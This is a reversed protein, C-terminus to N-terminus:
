KVPKAKLSLRVVFYGLIGAVFSGGLIGMKASNILVENTFALDNIFLAMTFGLGGLLAVGAMSMFNVNKPLESLKLKVALYSIFFIGIFKGVLLSIGINSALLTNTNGSFSFVVGANALAFIPIIVYAVWGHLSHELFQVPSATKETLEEMEDIAVLQDHNLITVKKDPSQCANRFNQLIESGKDYFTRTDIHRDIPITLAMLVGAITSHIGSKLFLVWVVVGAIFYFYKAYLRLRTLVILALVIILGMAINAWILKSSYFFAIVLVAGLDDIIAFAMLFVKLGVPVRKGLLTLIGLSFAIDTAMPIGWGRMGENGTNFFVFLLAPFVMGGIAAFLPLSAKRLDSLEGILIERKIELGILFFFIAMLGDNIWKLVPKSLEFGPVSITIYNKWFGLFTESLSSNALILAAVTAIFLVISSSTELKIFRNIPKKIFNM